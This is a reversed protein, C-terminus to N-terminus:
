KIKFSVSWEIKQSATNLRFVKRKEAILISNSKM